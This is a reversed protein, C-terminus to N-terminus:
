HISPSTQVVPSSIEIIGSGLRTKAAQVLERLSNGDLPSCAIGIAVSIWISTGDLEIPSERISECLRIGIRGATQLDANPLLIM